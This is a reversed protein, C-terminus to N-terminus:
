KSEPVCGAAEASDDANLICAVQDDSMRECSELFETGLARRLVERHEDRDANIGAARLDVLHDRM